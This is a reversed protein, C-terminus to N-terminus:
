ANKDTEEAIHADLQKRYEEADVPLKVPMHKWASLYAANTLELANVADQGDVLLPEGYEIARAFNELIAEQCSENTEFTEERVDSRLNERSNVSANKRYEQLDQDFTTVTLHEEELLITGKSGAIELKETYSGEGTTLIFVGTKGGPYRMTLLAEDDVRFDNYKGFGIEAYLEEPMGFLWQWIDLIHQGQNILAGGGEGKWSSRWSGSHHYYPTRFYRSNELLIRNVTGIEGNQIMSRIRQYKPYTRQHFVVSFVLGSNGATELLERCAAVSEAVPKDLLLHKGHRLANMGMAPHLKHPTVILVADFLDSHAYLEDENAFISVTDGCIERVEQQTEARRAVVATITMTPANGKMVRRLYNKGMTGAGILATRVM